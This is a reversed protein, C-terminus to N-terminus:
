TGKEHSHPRAQGDQAPLTRQQGAPQEQEDLYKVLGRLLCLNRVSALPLVAWPHQQGTRKIALHQENLVFRVEDWSLADEKQKVHIGQSSARLAGFSVWRGKEFAQIVRPLLCRTVERELISELQKISPHDSTIEFTEGDSRLLTYSSIRDAKGEAHVNKWQGEIKNWPIAEPVQQVFLLGGPCLYVCRRTSLWCTTLWWLGTGIWGAGILLFLAIQWVSWWGLRAALLVAGLFLSGFLVCFLGFIRTFLSAQRPMYAAYPMGLQHQAALEKIKEPVQQRRSTHQM